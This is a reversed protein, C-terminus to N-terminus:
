SDQRGTVQATASGAAFKLQVEQGPELTKAQRVIEGDTTRVISFGRSLVAEPNLHGLGAELRGLREIRAALQTQLSQNLRIRWQVLWQRTQSLKEGPHILRHSFASLQSHALELRHTQVQKLRPELYDLGIQWQEMLRAMRLRLQRELNKVQIKLQSRDPSLLEAAATPTPARQDAVFDAITFDTEHGVGCVVPLACDFLARAVVEENFSQLDEQSGGGRCLILCDCELRESATRLARAIQSGAGEGQVPTPYIIIEISSNRRKLTTLVDRLAAAGLSTIIGIRQPHPPLPRKHAPDFLGEAELAAKLKLFQEYLNGAGAEELQEVVIQCEGRAPYLTVQGLLKVHMGNTPKVLCRLNRQRFMACSIQADSDKLKFYWHGSSAATFNSIEGSVWLTGVEGELLSRIRLNLESVSIVHNTSM